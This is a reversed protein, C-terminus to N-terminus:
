AERCVCDTPTHLPLQLRGAFDAVNADLLLFETTDALGSPCITIEAGTAQTGPWYDPLLAATSRDVHTPIFLRPALQAMLEFGKRNRADMDSYPNAVQSLAVDVTGLQALQEPSLQDQGIDGFHAVRLGAIEVLYIYNYGGEPKPRQSNRHASAIGEVHVGPADITGVSTFLQRGPFSAQFREDYHDWHTHTTLLIDAPTAPSSLRSPDGIDILVRTGEPAILEFQAYNEHRLTLCQEPQTTTTAASTSTTPSTGPTTPVVISSSTESSAPAVTSVSPVSAGEGAPDTASCAALCSAAVLLLSPHRRM